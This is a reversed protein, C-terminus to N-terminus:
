PNHQTTKTTSSVSTMLATRECILTVRRSMTRKVCPCRHLEQSVHQSDNHAAKLALQKSLYVGIRIRQKVTAFGCRLCTHSYTWGAKPSSAACSWQWRTRRGATDESQKTRRQEASPRGRHGTSQASMSQCRQFVGLKRVVVGADTVSGFERGRATRPCDLILACTQEERGGSLTPRVIDEAFHIRRCISTYQNPPRAAQAHTEHVTGGRCDRVIVSPHFM